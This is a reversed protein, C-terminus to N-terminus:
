QATENDPLTGDFLSGDSAARKIAFPHVPAQLLALLAWEPSHMDDGYVDWFYGQRPGHSYRLFSKGLKVVCTPRTDERPFPPMYNPIIEAHKRWTNLNGHQDDFMVALLREVTFLSPDIVNGKNRESLCGGCKCTAPHGCRCAWCGLAGTRDLHKHGCTSCRNESTELESVRAHLRAVYSFEPVTGHGDEVLMRGMLLHEVIASQTCNDDTALSKLREYAETSMAVVIRERNSM